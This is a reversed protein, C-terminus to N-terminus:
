YNSVPAYKVDAFMKDVFDKAEKLGLGQFSEDERLAKIVNIKNMATIHQDLGLDHFNQLTTRVTARMSAPPQPALTALVTPMADKVLGILSQVTEHSTKILTIYEEPTADMNVNIDALNSPGSESPNPILVTFNFKM